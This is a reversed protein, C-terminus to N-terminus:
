LQSFFLVSGIINVSQIVAAKKLIYIL